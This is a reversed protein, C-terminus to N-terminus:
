PGPLLIQTPLGKYLVESGSLGTSGFDGQLSIDIDADSSYM